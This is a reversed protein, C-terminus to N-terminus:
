KKLYRGITTASAGFHRGLVKHTAKEGAAIRRTKEAKVAAADAKRPRGGEGPQQLLRAIHLQRIEEERLIEREEPTVLYFKQMRAQYAEDMIRAMEAEPYSRKPEPQSEPKPGRKPKRNKM